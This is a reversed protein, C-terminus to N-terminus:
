QSAGAPEFRMRLAEYLKRDRQDNLAQTEAMRQAAEAQAAQADTAMQAEADTTLYRAPLCIEYHCREGRFGYSLEFVWREGEQYWGDLVDGKDPVRPPEDALPGSEEDPFLALYRTVARAVEAKVAHHLAARRRCLAEQEERCTQVEQHLTEFHSAM